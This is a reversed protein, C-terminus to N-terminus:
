KNERPVAFKAETMAKVFDPVSMGAREAGKEVGYIGEAVSSFIEGLRGEEIGEKRGKEMGEEIGEARIGDVFVKENYETICMSLVEARHVTLFTRLIDHEICYTVAEDVAKTPNPEGNSKYRKVHSAM